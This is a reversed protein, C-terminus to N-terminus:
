ELGAKKELAIVLGVAEELYKPCTKYFLEEEEAKKRAEIDAMTFGTLNDCIVTEFKKKFKHIFKVASTYTADKYKEVDAFRQRNLVGLAAVAGVVAGCVNGELGVGGGIGAMSATAQEYYLDYKELVSRLVSQACNYDEDVFYGVAAAATEDTM